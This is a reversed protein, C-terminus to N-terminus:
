WPTLPTTVFESAEGLLSSGQWRRCATACLPLSVASRSSIMLNQVQYGLVKKSYVWCPGVIDTEVKVILLQDEVAPPVSDIKVRLVEFDTEKHLDGLRM